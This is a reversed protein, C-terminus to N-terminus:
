SLGGQLSPAGPGSTAAPGGTSENQPAFLPALEAALSQMGVSILWGITGLKKGTIEAIERYSREGLLRLVLVERQDDPLRELGREVRARTDAAEIADLGGATAESQAATQERQRRRSESRLADMCLNRTVTHLWAALPKHAGEPPGELFAPLEPPRKALKLFADQVADQGGQGQGLLARAHSLLAAQYRDVLAEFGRPDGAKWAALLEGDSTDEM